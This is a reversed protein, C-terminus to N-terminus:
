SCKDKKQRFLYFIDPGCKLFEQSSILYPVQPSDVVRLHNGYAEVVLFHNSNVFAIGPTYDENLEEVTLKVAQPILGKKEAAKLLGAMTTGTEDLGVLEALENVSIDLGFTRCIVQLAQPGCDHNAPSQIKIVNSDVAEQAETSLGALFLFIPIQCLLLGFGKLFRTDYKWM